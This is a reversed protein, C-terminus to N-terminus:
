HAHGQPGTERLAAISQVGAIPHSKEQALDYNLQMMLWGRATSLGAAELRRALNISVGAKENMVRSLSVRSVGLKDAAEKVSFGLTEVLELKILGGPHAPNHM